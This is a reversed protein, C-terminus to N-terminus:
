ASPTATEASGGPSAWGGPYRDWRSYGEVERTVFRPLTRDAREVVARLEALGDRVLGHLVDGVGADQYAADM